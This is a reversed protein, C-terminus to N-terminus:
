SQRRCRKRFTLEIDRAVGVQRLDVGDEMQTHIVVDSWPVDSGPVWGDHAQSVDELHAASVVDGGNGDRQQEDVVHGLYSSATLAQM